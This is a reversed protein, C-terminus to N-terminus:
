AKVSPREGVRAFWAVINSSATDLPQGIQNGFDLWGYLHIDALTFRKGCIFERSDAMQGNLWQLRNAAIMKLGPSAEPAAPIRKEFSWFSLQEVSHEAPKARELLKCIHHVV